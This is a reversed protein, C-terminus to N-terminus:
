PKEIPASVLDETGKDELEEIRKRINDEPQSWGKGFEYVWISNTETCKGVHICRPLPENEKIILGNLQYMIEIPVSHEPCLPKNPEEQIQWYYKSTEAEKEIEISMDNLHRWFSNVIAGSIDDPHRFGLEIFYDQLHSGGWLGWNNRMWMGLGMHHKILDRKSSEKLERIFEPHLMRKLEVFCDNIDKPIYIGKPQNSDPTPNIAYKPEAQEKPNTEDNNEQKDCGYALFIFFLILFFVKKM